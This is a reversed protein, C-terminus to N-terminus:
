VLETTDRQCEQNSSEILKLWYRSEKSEKRCIRIRHAFDKKSLSENSEIYNAGVSGASPVVKSILEINVTNKPLIQCM